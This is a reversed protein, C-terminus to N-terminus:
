KYNIIYIIFVFTDKETIIKYINNSSYSEIVPTAIDSRNWVDDTYKLICTTNNLKRYTIRNIFSIM